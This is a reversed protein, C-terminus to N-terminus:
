ASHLPNVALATGEAPNIGTIMTGGHGDSALSFDGATYQGILALQATTSGETVTLVGQSFTKTTDGAFKINRLDIQDTYGFGSIGDTASVSDASALDLLGYQGSFTVGQTWGNAQVLEIGHDYITTNIADGWAEVIQAGFSQVYTENATGGARVFQRGGDNIETAHALGDVDQIGYQNITTGGASGDTKVEMIGLNFAQGNVQTFYATGGKEVEVDGGGYVNSWYASSGSGILQTGQNYIYTGNAM